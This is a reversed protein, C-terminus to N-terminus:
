MWGRRRDQFYSKEWVYGASAPDAKTMLAVITVVANPRAYEWAMRFTEKTGAVELVVDAGGHPCEREVTKALEEPAAM